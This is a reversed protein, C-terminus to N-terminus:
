CASKYMSKVVSHESSNRFARFRNIAVVVLDCMSVDDAGNVKTRTFEIYFERARSINVHGSPQYSGPYLNFTIMQVGCDKPTNIHAGGYTYPVYHNFFDAPIDRYLPIGHAEVTISQLIPECSQYSAVCYPSPLNDTLDAITTPFGALNDGPVNDVNYLIDVGQVLLARNIDGYSVVNNALTPVILSGLPFGPQPTNFDIAGGVLSAFVGPVNLDAATIGAPASNVFFSNGISCTTFENQQLRSYQHWGELLATSQVNINATPRLGLYMTEIPWKLQQHLIRDTSNSTRTSQQRHVRILSFGIRKIFIDHIEPNVFINNIFLECVNVNPVPPPNNGPADDVPSYGVHQLIENANALTVDIFRQGYPISVSPISLRPDQNFWFLLPVWLDIQPQVAKPTQPGSNIQVKQRVGAGRGLGSNMFGDDSLEQGM